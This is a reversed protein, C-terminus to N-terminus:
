LRDEVGDFFGLVSEDDLDLLGFNGSFRISVRMFEVYSSM